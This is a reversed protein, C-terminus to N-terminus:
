VNRGCTALAWVAVSLGRGSCGARRGEGRDDISDAASDNRDLDLKDLTGVVALYWPHRMQLRAIRELAEEPLEPLDRTLLRAGALSQARAEDNRRVAIDHGVIMDHLVRGIHRHRHVVALRSGCRDDPGVGLGVEGQELDLAAAIIGIDLKGRLGRMDAIPHERDAIREAEAARHRGADDRRASAVDAVAGIVIEQLDVRRDIAAIGAARGEIGLALDDAHVRRDVRRGAAADADAEGNRGLGDLLDDVASFVLPM